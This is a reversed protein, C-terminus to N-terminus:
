RWREFRTPILVDLPRIHDIDLRRYPGTFTKRDEKEADIGRASANRTRFYAKDNTHKNGKKTVYEM